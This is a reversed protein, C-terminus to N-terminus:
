RHHSEAGFLVLEVAVLKRLQIMGVACVPTFRKHPQREPAIITLKTM